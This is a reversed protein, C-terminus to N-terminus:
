NAARHPALTMPAFLLLGPASEEIAGPNGKGSFLGHSEAEYDRIRPDRFNPLRFLSQKPFTAKLSGRPDAHAWFLVVPLSRRVYVCKPSSSKRWIFFSVCNNLKFITHNLQTNKLVFVDDQNEKWLTIHRIVEYLRIWDFFSAGQLVLFHLLLLSFM